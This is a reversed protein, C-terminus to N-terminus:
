QMPLYSELSTHEAIYNRFTPTLIKYFPMENLISTIQDPNVMTLNRNFSDPQREFSGINDSISDRSESTTKISHSLSSQRERINFTNNESGNTVLMEEAESCKIDRMDRVDSLGRTRRFMSENM